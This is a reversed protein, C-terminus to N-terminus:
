GFRFSKKGKLQLVRGEAGKLYLEHLVDRGAFFVQEIVALNRGSGALLGAPM